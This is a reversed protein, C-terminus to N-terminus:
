RAPGADKACRFGVSTVAQEPPMPWRRYCRLSAASVNWAGGKVVRASGAAPGTPNTARRSDGPEGYWDATWEMVNGALNLCGEPSAGRPYSEVPATHKYGDAAFAFGFFNALAEGQGEPPTNGWPYIRGDTGRAAREWEAETPLRKGAWKAYAWADYWDVGVVPLDPDSMGLGPDDWTAPVHHTKSVSQEPHRYKADGDKVAALFKAYEGNSVETKDIAFADLTVRRPREPAGMIFEGAPVLVMGAMAASVPSAAEAAVAEANGGAPEQGDKAPGCGFGAVIAGCFLLEVIAKPIRSM